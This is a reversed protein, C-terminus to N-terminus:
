YENGYAHEYKTIYALTAAKEALVDQKQNQLQLMISAHSMRLWRLAYNGNARILARAALYQQKTM